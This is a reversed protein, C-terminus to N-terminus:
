AWLVRLQDLAFHTVNLEARSAFRIPMWTLATLLVHWDRKKWSFCPLINCFILCKSALYEFLCKGINQELATEKM